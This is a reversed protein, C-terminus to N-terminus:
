KEPSIPTPEDGADSATQGPRRSSPRVKAALDPKGALRLAGTLLTAVGGFVEDYAAIARNKADLTAQAERLERAVDALTADLKERRQALDAITEAIDLKAGKIRAKPLTVRGLAGEIDRAFRSLVVPDEPTRSTFVSNATATGYVGTLIERLEILRDALDAAAEDRAKRYGDDDGIEADHAVDAEVMTAKAADLARSLLVAVRSVDPSPEGKRLHPKFVQALAAGIADAQTEGAAVVARASKERDTVQKSSM